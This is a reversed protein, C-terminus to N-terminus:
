QIYPAQRDVLPSNQSELKNLREEVKELRDLVRRDSKMDEVKFEFYNDMFSELMHGIHSIEESLVMYGLSIVGLTLALLTIKTAKGMSILHAISDQEKTLM